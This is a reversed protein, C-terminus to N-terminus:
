FDRIVRAFKFSLFISSTLKVFYGERVLEETLRSKSPLSFERRSDESQYSLKFSVRQELGTFLKAVERSIM